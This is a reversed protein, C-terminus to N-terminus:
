PGATASVDFGRLRASVTVARDSTRSRMTSDVSVPGVGPCYVTRVEVELKGGTESVEVCREFSGAPTQVTTEVAVLRAQRGGPGQWESGPTLPARLLWAEGPLLRIGDDLVEYRVISRGTRVEAVRGDFSEVKTIALTTTPDGTDVDYSWANGARLPYLDGPSLSEIRATSPASSACAAGLCCALSAALRARELM